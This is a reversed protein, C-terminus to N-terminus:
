GDVLVGMILAHQTLNEPMRIGYHSPFRGCLAKWLRIGSVAYGRRQRYAFALRRMQDERNESIM